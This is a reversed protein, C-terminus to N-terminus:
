NARGSTAIKSSKRKPEEAEDDEKRRRQKKDQPIRTERHRSTNAGDESTTVKMESMEGNPVHEHVNNMNRPTASEGVEKRPSKKTMTRWRM